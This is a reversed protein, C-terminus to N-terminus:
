CFSKPPQEPIDLCTSSLQQVPQINYTEISKITINFAFQIFSFQFKELVNTKGFPVHEKKPVPIDKIHKANIVNEGTLRTTEYNPICMLYIANRTMKMKVYNYSADEFQIQGNVNEYTPWDIINPMSVPIRVETLDDINYKNKSIQENFFKDTKYTFYQHLVLYGGINFLHFSLLTIAILRRM